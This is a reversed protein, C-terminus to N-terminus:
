KEMSLCEIDTGWHHEAKQALKCEDWTTIQTSVGGAQGFYYIIMLTKFM